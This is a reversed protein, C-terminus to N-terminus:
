FSLTHELNITWWFLALSLHFSGCSVTWQFVEGLFFFSRTIKDWQFSGSLVKVMKRVNRVMTRTSKWRDAPSCKVVVKWADRNGSTKEEEVNM